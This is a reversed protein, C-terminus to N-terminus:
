VESFEGDSYTWGVQPKPSVYEINILTDGGDIQTNADTQNLELISDVTGDVIKAWELLPEAYTSGDFTWGTSPKPDEDTVNRIDLGAARLKDAVTENEVVIMNVKGDIIQAYDAM